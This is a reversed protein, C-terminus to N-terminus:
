TMGALASNLASMRHASIVGGITVAMEVYRNKTGRPKFLVTSPRAQAWATLPVGNTTILVAALRRLASRLRSRAAMM